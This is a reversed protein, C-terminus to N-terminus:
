RQFLDSYLVTSAISLTLAIPILCLAGVVVALWHWRLVTRFFVTGAVFTPAAGRILWGRDLWCDWHWLKWNFIGVVFGTSPEPVVPQPDAIWVGILFSVELVVIWPAFLLLRKLLDSGLQSRPRRERLTSVFIWLLTIAGFLFWWRGVAWLEWKFLSLWYRSSRFTNPMGQATKWAQDTGWDFAVALTVGFERILPWMGVITGTTVLAVIACSGLSPIQEPQLLGLFRLPAALWSAIRNRCVASQESIWQIEVLGARSLISRITAAIILPCLLFCAAGVAFASRHPFQISIALLVAAAFIALFIQRLSFQVPPQQRRAALNDSEAHTNNTPQPM